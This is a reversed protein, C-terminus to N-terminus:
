GSYKPLSIWDLSEFYNDEINAYNASFNLHNNKFLEYDITTSAKLYSNGAMSLFDYGYFPRFNNLPIFGFGGLVFDFFPVSDEGITFGGETQIKLTTKKLVNLAIGVDAK